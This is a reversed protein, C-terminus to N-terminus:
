GTPQQNSDLRPLKKQRLDAERNSLITAIDIVEAMKQKNAEFIENFPSVLEVNLKENDFSFNSCLLDLLKRREEPTQRLFLGYANKCLELIFNSNVLYSKDAKNLADLKIILLDKEEQWNKTKEQWFSDSINGELKDEYCKYILGQLKKIRAQIEDISLGSYQIKQQHLKKLGEQIKDIEEQTLMISKFIDAFHEELTEQRVYKKAHKGKNQTCFYYIYKEKKIDATLYCGCVDCKIMNTYAFGRFNNLSKRPDILKNKVKYFLEKSILADHQANEYRKGKWNFVGTYFENKLIFEVQSKPLPKNNTYTFGEDYIKQRLTNLSYSGTSYLEFMRKILPAKKFDVGIINKGNPAKINLYGIPARHPYVGQEAKELMGKFTEESLNNIFKKAVTAYIGVMFKDSSNSRKNIILNEKVLHLEIDNEEILEDMIALDFYNRTMRDTKEFLVTTVSKNKGLFKLMKGFGVRGKKGATQVDIFEEVIQLDNKKAYEKLLKVQSPISFGEQEQGKSSVRAYLVAKKM